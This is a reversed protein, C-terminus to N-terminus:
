PEPRDEASGPGSESRVSAELVTKLGRRLRQSVATDSIGLADGLDVLNTQRPIDFYGSDLATVLAERQADSLEVNPDGGVRRPEHLRHIEHEVGREEAAAFFQGVEPHGPFGFRCFWGEDTATASMVVGDLELLVPYLDTEAGRGRISAAYLRQHGVEIARSLAVTPDDEMASEFREFDGGEALFLLERDGDVSVNRIWETQMEPVEQLTERMLPHDLHVEVFLM